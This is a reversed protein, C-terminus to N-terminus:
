DDNYVGSFNVPIFCGISLIKSEEIFSNIQYKVFTREPHKLSEQYRKEQNDRLWKEILMNARVASVTHVIFTHDEELDGEKDDHMIVHAGIQYFKKTGKNEDDSNDADPNGDTINDCTAEVFNEMSIDGKLYAVDIEYKYNEAPKLKDVLVVCYDMAKIDTIEFGGKYNLEIYDVLIVLANAISTAYLLFTERKDNIKAVAKYPYMSHNELLMGQRNQNSVEVEKLSGEQMMFNISTLVDQSIYTGRELLIDNREISVIDGTSEDKFNEVWTKLARRAVWKGLMRKPDSTVYRIESKRTEVSNIKSVM